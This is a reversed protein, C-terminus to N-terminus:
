DEQSIIGKEKEDNISTKYQYDDDHLEYAKRNRKEFIKKGLFLGLIFLVIALIISAIM